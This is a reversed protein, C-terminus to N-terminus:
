SVFSDNDQEESNDKLSPSSTVSPQQMTGTVEESGRVEESQTDDAVTVPPGLAFNVDIQLVPFLVPRLVNALM